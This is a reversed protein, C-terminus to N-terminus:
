EERQRHVRIGEGADCDAQVQDAAVCSFCEYTRQTQEQRVRYRQVCDCGPLSDRENATIPAEGYRPVNENPALANRQWLVPRSRM